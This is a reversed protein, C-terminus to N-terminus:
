PQVLRLWQPMIFEQALHAWQYQQYNQANLWVLEEIEALAIPQHAAELQIRFLSGRVRTNAENVALTTHHGLYTCQAASFSLGLEEQLERLLAEVASEGKAIKGGPLQYFASGKKRVLLIQQEADLIMAAAIHIEQM